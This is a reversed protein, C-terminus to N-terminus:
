HQTWRELGFRLVLTLAIGTALIVATIGNHTVLAEVSRVVADRFYKTMVVETVNPVMTEHAPIKDGRSM